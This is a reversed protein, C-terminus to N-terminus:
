SKDKVLKKIKESLLLTSKNKTKIIDKRNRTTQASCGLKYQLIKNTLPSDSANSFGFSFDSHKKHKKSSKKSKKDSNKCKKTEMFDRHTKFFRDFQPNINDHEQGM